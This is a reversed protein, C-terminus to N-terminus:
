RLAVSVFLVILATAGLGVLTLALGAFLRFAYAYPPPTQSIKLVAWWAAAIVVLVAGAVHLSVLLEEGFSPGMMHFSLWHTM